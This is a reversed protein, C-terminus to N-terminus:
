IPLTMTEEIELGALTALKVFGAAHDVKLKGCIKSRHHEITKISLSLKSAIEKNAFGSSLMTFVELERKSLSKLLDTAKIRQKLRHRNAIDNKIAQNIREILVFDKCPKAFYDFAGCKMANVAIHVDNVATHVIVPRPILDAQIRILFEMGSMQPLVMETVVCGPINTDAAILYQSGTEFKQTKLGSSRILNELESRDEQHHNLIFVTANEPFARIEHTEKYTLM